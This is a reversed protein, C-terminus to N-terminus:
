SLAWRWLAISLPLILFGLLMFSIVLCTAGLKEEDDKINTEEESMKTDVM